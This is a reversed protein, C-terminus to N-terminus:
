KLQNRKVQKTFKDKGMGALICQAWLVAKPKNQHHAIAKGTSLETVTFGDHWSVRSRHCAFKFKAAWAPKNIRVPDAEIEEPGSLLDVKIKM